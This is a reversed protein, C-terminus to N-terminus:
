ATRRRIKRELVDARPRSPSLVTATEGPIRWCGKKWLDASGGGGYKPNESSWRIEWARGAPPALLPEALSDRHLDAGLNVILLRDETHTETFFRLVFAFESIVAGDISGPRQSQFAADERRLQLLDRHLAYVPAHTDRERFDLKCREFTRPDGPADLTAKAEYDAVSPFQLLFEARGKKVAESLDPDFDVFFLFPASAAFEQGQFLMPTSPMLLLLATMARYKAPSTLQHIRLGRASNAVQDHNQLFNVFQAPGLGWAPTGRPQQQWHYHQGQYLYGYKAASIFEQPEGHTDSYYAEGRGTLAVIASHHFDDNWLADLGFGGAERPRVLQTEQPENEAVVITSRGRAAERVRSAVAALIHESSSDFIQQTADLRLGDFHFEEIWYGANSIFFERV